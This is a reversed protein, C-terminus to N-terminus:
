NDALMIRTLLIIPILGAVIIAISPLAADTLREDSALEYARVALTNFNFPRLVLTAPLEKMVDVFVILMGSLVSSRMLPIHVRRITALSSLGLSRASQEMAPQVAALGAEVSNIALALFRVLYAIILAVVSGSLLLGSSIGFRTRLWADLSNDFWGLPLLIGIAIILGPIAYGLAAISKAFLTLRNPHLRHAYVLLMAFITAILSSLGALVITNTILKWYTAQLFQEANPLAWLLLQGVPIIFGLLLPLSVITIALIQARGSLRTKEHKVHRANSYFAARRRSSKELILVLVVFGLLTIALQAATNVSGLGYWTRFIGTTFTSLGFYSVAGYDALTEMLVLALGAVIAPRAIPIKVKLFSQRHSLGLSRAAHSLQDSQEAFAARSLLYIYPYLVFSLVFIAGSLSRIQPFWYEGVKLDFLQRLSEQLPGAVDMLGTYAYATIYAPTALPLLLAWSFFRAGPFSYQSVVLASSVGLFTSLVAVGLALLFTTKLYDVLVTQTLHQWIALDNNSSLFLLVLIPLLVLAGILSAVLTWLYRRPPLYLLGLKPSIEM